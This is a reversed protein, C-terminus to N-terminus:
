IENENTVDIPDGMLEIVKDMESILDKVHEEDPILEGLTEVIEERTMVMFRHVNACSIELVDEPLPSTEFCLEDMSKEDPTSIDDLYQNMKEQNDNIFENLTSMYEEKVGFLTNNALNQLVKAVLVLTRLLTDSPEETLVGYEDSATISPTYYRLIVMGGLSQMVRDPFKAGVQEKVFSLIFRFQPPINPGHHVVSSFIAQAAAMLNYKNVNAKGEDALRDPDMEMDETQQEKMIEYMCQSLSTHLFQIGFALHCFGSWMKSAMSYGRFLLDGDDCTAIEQEIFHQLLKVSEGGNEFIYLLSRGLYSAVKTEAVKCLVEVFDLNELLLEQLEFMAKRMENSNLRKRDSDSLTYEEGFMTQIDFVPLSLIDAWKDRDHHKKWAYFGGAAIAIGILALVVSFLALFANGSMGLADGARDAWYDSAVKVDCESGTYGDECDCEGTEIVCEGYNCDKDSCVTYFCYDELYGVDCDCTGSDTDCTGHGNCKTTGYACLIGKCNPGTFNTNCRCFGTDLVCQGGDQAENCDVDDCLQQSCTTGYYGDEENCECYGITKDYVCEGQNTASNCNELDRDCLDIQCFEGSYGNECECSGDNNDCEGQNTDENCKNEPCAETNCTEGIYGEHCVCKSTETQCNGNGCEDDNQCGTATTIKWGSNTYESSTAQSLFTVDIQCEDGCSSDFPCTIYSEEVNIVSADVYVSDTGSWKCKWKIENSDQYVGNYEGNEIVSGEELYVRIEGDAYSYNQNTRQIEISYSYDITLNYNGLVTNYRYDEIEGCTSGDPCKVQLRGTVKFDDDMLMDATFTSLEDEPVEYSVYTQIDDVDDLDRWSVPSTSTIFEYGKNYGDKLALYVDYIPENNQTNPKGLLIDKWEYDSWVADRSGRLIMKKLQFNSAPVNPLNWDMNKLEYSAANAEGGYQLNTSGQFRVNYYDLETPESDKLTPSFTNAYQLNRFVNQPDAEDFEPSNETAHVTEGSFFIELPSGVCNVIGYFCCILILFVIIKM